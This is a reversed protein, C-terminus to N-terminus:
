AIAKTEPILAYAIAWIMLEYTGTPMSNYSAYSANQTPNAM